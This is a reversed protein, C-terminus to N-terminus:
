AIWYYNAWGAFYIVQLAFWLGCLMGFWESHELKEGLLFFVPVIVALMRSVSVLSGTAVPIVSMLLVYLGFARPMRSGRRLLLYVGCGLFLVLLLADIKFVDLVPAELNLRLGELFGYQLRGWARQALFPAFFEGSIRYLHYLHAALGLPTLSFWLVDASIEGM